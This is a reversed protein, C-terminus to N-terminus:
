EKTIKNIIESENLIEAEGGNESPKVFSSLASESDVKHLAMLATLKPFNIIGNNQNTYKIIDKLEKESGYSIFYEKIMKGNLDINDPKQIMYTVKDGNVYPVMTDINAKKIKFYINKVEGKQAFYSYMMMEVTGHDSYEDFIKEFSKIDKKKVCDVWKNLIPYISKVFDSYDSEKDLVTYASLLYFDQKFYNINKKNTEIVIGDSVEYALPHINLKFGDAVIETRTKANNLAYELADTYKIGKDQVFKKFETRMLEKDNEKYDLLHDISSIIKVNSDSKKTINKDTNKTKEVIKVEKTEVDSTKIMMLGVGSAIVVIGAVVMGLTKKNEM